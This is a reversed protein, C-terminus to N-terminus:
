DEALAGIATEIRALDENPVTDEFILVANAARFCILSAADECREYEALGADDGDTITLSGAAHVDTPPLGEATAPGPAQAGELRVAYLELEEQTSTLPEGLRLGAGQENIEAVLEQASFHREDGCAALAVTALLGPLLPWLGPRRRGALRTRGRRQRSARNV